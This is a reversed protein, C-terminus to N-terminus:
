DHPKDGLTRNGEISRGGALMMAAYAEQTMGTMSAAMYQFSRGDTAGIKALVVRGYVAVLAAYDSDELASEAYTPDVLGNAVFGIYIGLSPDASNAESVRLASLCSSSSLALTTLYSTITTLVSEDFQFISVDPFVITFYLSYTGGM